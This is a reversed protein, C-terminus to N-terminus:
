PSKRLKATGCRLSDASVKSLSSARMSTGSNTNVSSAYGCNWRAHRPGWAPYGFTGAAGALRHLQERISQLPAAANDWSTPLQRAAQELSPLEADLRERFGRSLTELQMHLQETKDM